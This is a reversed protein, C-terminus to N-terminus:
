AHGRLPSEAAANGIGILEGDPGATLMVDELAGVEATPSRSSVRLYNDTLGMGAGDAVSEWLVTRTSGVFSSLYRRQLGESLDLMAQVRENREGDLVSGEMRAALTRSRRSYPFVHLFAFRTANVFDMSKQFDDTSEGPFGVLVDTGIAVDPDASRAAAVISTFDAATYKRRMGRLTRDSGSQLPLHLHPCLQGEALLAFIEDDFDMPEVSSLRIRAAGSEAAARSILGGLRIGTDPCRYSGLSVGSLVVENAGAAVFAVVEAIVDRAALSVSKGRARPVICFACVHNCGEQVKVMPRIRNQEGFRLRPKEDLRATSVGLVQSIEDVLEQQKSPAAILANPFLKKLHEGEVSAYCGTVALLSGPSNRISRTVAKRSKRDAVHTVTCTNVIVVDAPQGFPVPWFGRDTLERLLRDSDSQNVRCGLTKVAVTPGSRGLAVRSGASRTPRRRVHCSGSTEAGFDRRTASRASAHRPM